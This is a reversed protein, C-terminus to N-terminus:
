SLNLFINIDIARVGAIRAIAPNVPRGLFTYAAKQLGPLLKLANDVGGECSVLGTLMTVFANTLAMAVTRPVTADANTMYALNSPVRAPLPVPPAALDIHTISPFMLGPRSSIDFLAVGKKMLPITDSGIVFRSDSLTNIVVDASRLANTVVRPHLASGIAWPGLERLARRLSYVDNDFLRVTAGAGAAARAAACAAIGSGFVTVECPVIGAVGGLLIGKGSSDSLLGASKAIAARGNIESIIDAFPTNGASDEILDIAIAIINRSLLARIAAPQQHHLSLMTILMAGRRIHSIDATSLPRLHIVIDCGLADARNVIEAGCRTYAEDTYSIRQAAGREMRVAFGSDVLMQVGEPTLPFRRDSLSACSPLGITFRRSPNAVECMCPQTELGEAVAPRPSKFFDM